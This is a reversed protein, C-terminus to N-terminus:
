FKVTKKGIKITQVEVPKGDPGSHELAQRRGWRKYHRRELRWCMARYDEASAKSIVALADSEAEAEAHDVAECFVLFPLEVPNPETHPEIELREMEARGRQLWRRVTSQHLNCLAACTELYNGQRLYHCIKEQVEPTLKSVRGAGGKRPKDSM